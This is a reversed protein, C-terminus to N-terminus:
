FDSLFGFGSIRVQRLWFWIRSLEAIPRLSFNRSCTAKEHQEVLTGAEAPARLQAACGCKNIVVVLRAKSGFAVPFRQWKACSKPIVFRIPFSIRFGFDSDDSGRGNRM